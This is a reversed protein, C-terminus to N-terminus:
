VVIVVNVRYTYQELNVSIGLLATSGFELLQEVQYILILSPM